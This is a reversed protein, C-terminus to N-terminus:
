TEFKRTCLTLTLLAITPPTFFIGFQVASPVDYVTLKWAAAAGLLWFCDFFLAFLLIM